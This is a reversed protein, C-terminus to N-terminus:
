EWGMCGCYYEDTPLGPRHRFFALEPSSPVDAHRGYGCSATRGALDPAPAITLAPQHDQGQGLLCIVCAPSGDARTSNAAHGCVMMPTPDTSM